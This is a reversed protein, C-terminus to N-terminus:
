PTVEKPAVTRPEARQPPPFEIRQGGPGGVTLTVGHEAALKMGSDVLTAAIAALEQVTGVKSFYLRPEDDAAITLLVEARLDDALLNVTAGEYARAVRDDLRDM